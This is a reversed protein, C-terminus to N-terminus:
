SNFIEETGNCHCILCVCLGTSLKSADTGYYSCYSHFARVAKEWKGRENTRLPVKKSLEQAQSANDKCGNIILQKDNNNNNIKVFFFFFVYLQDLWECQLKPPFGPDTMAYNHYLTQLIQISDTDNVCQFEVKFERFHITLILGQEQVKILDLLHGERRVEYNKSTKRVSMLRYDTIVVIRKQRKYDEKKIKKIWFLMVRENWENLEECKQQIWQRDGASIDQKLDESDDETTLFRSSIARISEMAKLFLPKYRRKKPRNKGTKTLLQCCTLSKRVEFTHLESLFFKKFTNKSNTAQYRSVKHLFQTTKVKTEVSVFKEIEVDFQYVGLIDYTNGVDPHNSDLKNFRLNLAKNGFQMSKDYEGKEKYVCGLNNYSTAVHIHDYGLKALTIKLSKEYYEIAKHYEGKDSYIIGLNNYSHTVHIHDHGFKDLRINLSREYYKVAKDYERKNHLLNCFFSCYRFPVIHLYNIKEM